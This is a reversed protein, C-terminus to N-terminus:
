TDTPLPDIPIGLDPPRESFRVDDFRFMEVSGKACDVEVQIWQERPKPPDPYAWEVCIRPISPMGAIEVPRQIRPSGSVRAFAPPYDLGEVTKRALQIAQETSLQAKGTFNRLKFPLLASEFFCHPSRWYTIRNGRYVFHWESKLTLEVYPAGGNNSCYFRKVQNTTVPLPVSLHLRRACEEVSRFVVPVLRYAYEHNIDDARENMRRWPHGPPLPDPLVTVKPDPRNLAVINNFRISEIRKRHANVEVETTVGGGRPDIWKIRYRPIQNTGSRELEPVQPELDALVEELRYGLKKIAARALNVAEEQAMCLPGFFVSTRQSDRPSFYCTPSEYVTVHGNQFGFVTGDELALSEGVQGKRKVLFPPLFKQVQGMEIPTHVPLKLKTAFDSCYPLVAALMANSYAPSTYNVWEGSALFEIKLEEPCDKALSSVSLSLAVAFTILARTWNPNPARL